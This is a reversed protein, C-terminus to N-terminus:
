QDVVVGELFGRITDALKKNTLTRGDPKVLFYPLLVDPKRGTGELFEPHQVRVLLSREADELAHKAMSAPEDEVGSIGGAVVVRLDEIRYTLEEPSIISLEPMLNQLAQMNKLAVKHDERSNYCFSITGDGGAGAIDVRLRPAEESAPAFCLNGKGDPIVKGVVTEM